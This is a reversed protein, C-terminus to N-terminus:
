KKILAALIKRDLFVDVIRYKERLSRAMAMELVATEAEHRLPFVAIVESSLREPYAEGERFTEKLIGYFKKM